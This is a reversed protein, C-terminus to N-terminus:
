PALLMGEGQKPLRVDIGEGELHAAFYEPNETHIPILIKPRIRRILRLLDPGSAHGSAHVGKERGEPDGVFRMGFHRLWNRLRRLDMQQEENYAESSSYIYTSGEQPEIDILDNIDWFSFCPICERQNARVETADIVRAGYKERLKVEWARPTVKPDKYILIDPLAGIDPVQESVLRMAELLYADKGLIVL